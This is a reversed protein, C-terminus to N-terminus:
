VFLEVQINLKGKKSLSAVGKYIFRGKTRVSVCEGEKLEKSNNECLRGDIFVLGRSFYGLSEERSMCFVKAVAADARPSQCQVTRIETKFLEGEPLKEIVSVKLDTHKAKTLNETIFEAIREEAFIYAGDDRIVIDGILSREIGLNMLAGLLDRHSLKDAWKKAKPEAKLTIIPFDVRYGLEDEDGFRIMVRETGDAGGFVTYKIGHLTSKIESFASREDLGLFETFTFIGSNYSKKALESLRKKTFERDDTM